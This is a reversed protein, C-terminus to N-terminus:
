HSLGLRREIHHQVVRGSHRTAGNEGLRGVRAPEAAALGAPPEDLLLVQPESRLAIGLDVLRQGGYSLAGGEIAEIGALGLFGILAETEAHIEPYADIDSWPDFRARHRAQLSLRLNEYITLNRFLNTIQFSRAIGQECIREPALARIDRGRLRITG